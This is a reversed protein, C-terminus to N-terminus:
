RRRPSHIPAPRPANARRACAPAGDLTKPSPLRVVGAREYVAGRGNRRPAAHSSGLITLHWGANRHGARLDSRDDHGVGTANASPGALGSIVVKWKFHVLSGELAPIAPRDRRESTDGQRDM